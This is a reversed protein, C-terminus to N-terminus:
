RRLGMRRELEGIRAFARELDREMVRRWKELDVDRRRRPMFQDVIAITTYYHGGSRRFVRVPGGQAQEGWWDRLVRQGWHRSRGFLRGLEGAGLTYGAPAEQRAAM